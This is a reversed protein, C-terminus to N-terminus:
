KVMYSSKKYSSKRKRGKKISMRIEANSKGKRRMWRAKRVETDSLNRKKSM